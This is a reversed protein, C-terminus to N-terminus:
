RKQMEITTRGRMEPRGEVSKVHISSFHLLCGCRDFAGVDSLIDPVISSPLLQLIAKVM